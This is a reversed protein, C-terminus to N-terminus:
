IRAPHTEDHRTQTICEYHEESSKNLREAISVAQPFVIHCDNSSFPSPPIKLCIHKRKLEEIPSFSVYQRFCQLQNFCDKEREPFPSLQDRELFLLHGNGKSFSFIVMEKRSLSSSWERELFLPDGTWKRLWFIAVATGSLSSSWERKPYPVVMKM